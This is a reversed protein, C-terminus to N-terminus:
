CKERLVEELSSAGIRFLEPTLWEDGLVQAAICYFKLADEPTRVGGSVKLGRRQGYKEHYEKLVQCMVFVAELSAGPYEKGTSTKIFDAGSFLALISARRIADADALLGSEIIVKLKAGRCSEKIEEIEEACAEYDGSLFRNLNLVIDIEEAGEAVALATEAIKVEAFTQSAPFGGCVSILRVEQATLTDRVTALLAPYVCIGAINPCNPNSGELDNIRMVMKAVSEETDGGRLSTYDVCGYLNRYVELRNYQELHEALLHEVQAMIETSTGCPHFKSFAEEARNIEIM